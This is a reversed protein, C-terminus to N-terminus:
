IILQPGSTESVREPSRPISSVWDGGPFAEIPTEQARLISSLCIAPAAEPDIPCWVIKRMPGPDTPRDGSKDLFSEARSRRSSEFRTKAVLAHRSPSRRPM